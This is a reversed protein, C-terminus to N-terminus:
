KIGFLSKNEAIAQQRQGIDKIGLIEEKTMSSTNGANVPPTITDAGKIDSEKFIFASYKDTTDQKLNEIDKISGDEELEIKSFDQIRVIDDFYKNSVGVDNLLAKFANVKANKVEEAQKSEKFDNFKKKVDKLDEKTKKLQLANKSAESKATDREEKLVDTVKTHEEIIKEIKDDEIGLNRLKERTLM